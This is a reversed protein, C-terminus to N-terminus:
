PQLTTTVHFTTDYHYELFFNLIPYSHNIVVLKSGHIFTQKVMRVKETAPISLINLKKFSILLPFTKGSRNQKNRILYIHSDVMGALYSVIVFINYKYVTHCRAVGNKTKHEKRAM